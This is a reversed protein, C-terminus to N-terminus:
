NFDRVKIKVIIRKGQADKLEKIPRGVIGEMIKESFNSIPNSKVYKVGDELSGTLVVPVVPINLASAIEEVVSRQAYLDGEEFYVDFLMFSEDERYHRGSQIKGGYGEGFLIVKKEGFMQEFMQEVEEGAFLEDLGKSLLSSFNSSETKGIYSIRQGDWVIGINTGDIKETFIWPIDKLMEYTPSSYEGEILKKTGKMDRNFLTNIKHYYKMKEDEGELRLVREYRGTESM